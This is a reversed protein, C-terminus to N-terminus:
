PDTFGRRAFIARGERSRLFAHFAAADSHRSSALLAAPYRIPPHSNKPFFGLVRVRSSARADTAYVIGLPAAGREVLALAARVNEAPAIRHAVSNWVGLSQLASRAYKGAPVAAPDALALRGRGLARALPFHRAPTLQERSAAPAVLVLRNGALSARTATKLRGNRAAADMWVEDAAIFLDARAGALVQRALASSAGFAVVPRAHGKRAWADAADTLTEQLSAAALILPGRDSARLAPAACLMAAVLCLCRIM